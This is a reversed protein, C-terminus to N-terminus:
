RREESRSREAEETKAKLPSVCLAPVVALVSVLQVLMDQWIALSLLRQIMWATLLLYARHVM